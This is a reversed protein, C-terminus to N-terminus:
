TWGNKRPADDNISYYDSQDAVFLHEAIKLGTPPDLTGATIYMTSDDETTPRWFLNSGCRNCFGREATESSRYWSLTQQADLHLDTSRASTM